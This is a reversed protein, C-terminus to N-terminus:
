YDTLAHLGALRPRLGQKAWKRGGEELSFPFLSLFLGQGLAIRRREAIAIGLGSM